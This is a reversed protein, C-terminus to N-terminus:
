LKIFEEKQPRAISLDGIFLLHFALLKGGLEMIGDLNTM